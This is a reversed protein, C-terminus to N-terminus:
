AALSGVTCHANGTAYAPNVATFTGTTKPKGNVYDLKNLAGNVFNLYYITSGNEYKVYFNEATEEEAAQDVIYQRAVITAEQEAASIRAKEIYSTLNPILVAALIGIIVIVVILETLTFGKKSTLKKM